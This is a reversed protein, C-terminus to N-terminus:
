SNVAFDDIQNAEPAAVLHEPVEMHLYFWEHPLEGLDHEHMAVIGKQRVLLRGSELELM